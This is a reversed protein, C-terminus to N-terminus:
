GASGPLAEVMHGKFLIPGTPAGTTSGGVPELSIAYSASKVADPDLDAPLPRATFEGIGVLGLSRPAPYKNSILWLEYNHGPETAASVRRVTLLRSKPDVSVLFAPTTPDQQLVAVLRSPAQAVEPAIVPQMQKSVPILGPAFQSVGVYLALLAAIATMAVTMSRWRRARRRLVVIEGSREIAPPTLPEPASGRKRDKGSGEKGSGEWGSAEKGLADKGAEDKALDQLVIAKLDSEFDLEQVLDPEKGPADKAESEPEPPLLSSALIESPEELDRPVEPLPAALLDYFSEDGTPANSAEAERHEALEPESHEPKAHELEPDDLAEPAAHEPEHHEPEDHGPADHGPEHYEPEQQPEAALAAAAAEPPKPEALEPATQPSAEELPPFSFEEDSNLHPEHAAGELGDIEAKVKEWVEAPPEVAEVMVNLEGLRREWVRVIEAFAPDIALLAEAQDREDASLTGLVYEAALADRDDDYM